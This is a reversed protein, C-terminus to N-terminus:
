TLALNKLGPVNGGRGKRGRKRVYVTGKFTTLSKILSHYQKCELCM